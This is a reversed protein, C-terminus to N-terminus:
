QVEFQVFQVHICLRKLYNAAWPGLDTPFESENM